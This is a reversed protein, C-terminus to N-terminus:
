TEILSFPVIVAVEEDLKEVPEEKMSDSSESNENADPVESTSM